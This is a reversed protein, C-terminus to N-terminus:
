QKESVQIKRIGEVRQILTGDARLVVLAAEPTSDAKTTPIIWVQRDFSGLGVLDLTVAPQAGDIQVAYHPTGNSPQPYWGATVLYRQLQVGSMETTVGHGKVTFPYMASDDMEIKIFGTNLRSRYNVQLPPISASANNTFAEAVLVLAYTPGSGDEGQVDFTLMFPEKQFGTVTGIFAVKSGRTIPGNFQGSNGEKDVLRVTAEPHVADTIALVLERPHEAPRTAVVTGSFVHVGNTGGPFLSHNVHSEFFAGGDKAQLATKLDSWLALSEETLKAESRIRKQGWAFPFPSLAALALLVPISSLRM